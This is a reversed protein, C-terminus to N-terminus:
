GNVEIPQDIALILRDAIDEITGIGDIAFHKGKEAYYAAVPATENNYVAIRNAIVEPKADDARGSTEARKLLRQTLEDEPVRLELLICDDGREKMFQDLAKAQPITRPFGDFIFGEADERKNVESTLMQITVEDPVLEGADMYKKALVGLETSNGINYRFIDGTSLHAFHYKAIINESQTGKGSGPPGFLIINLM